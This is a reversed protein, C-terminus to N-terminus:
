LEARLKQLYERAYAKRKEYLRKGTPTKFVIRNLNDKFIKVTQEFTQGRAGGVLFAKAVGFPGTIEFYNADHVIMEEPTIPNKLHTLLSSFMTEIDQKQWGLNYLFAITNNRFDRDSHIREGLGHFCALFNLKYPLPAPTLGYSLEKLRSIIREIHRFDHGTDKDNYLPRVFDKYLDINNIKDM